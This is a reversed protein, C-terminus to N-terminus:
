TLIKQLTNTVVHVTREIRKGIDVRQHAIGRITPMLVLLYISLIQANQIIVVIAFKCGMLFLAM